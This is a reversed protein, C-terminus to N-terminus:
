NSRYRPQSSRDSCYSLVEGPANLTALTARQQVATTNHEIWSLFFAYFSRRWDPGIKVFASWLKGAFIKTQHVLIELVIIGMVPGHMEAPCAANPSPQMKINEKKEGHQLINTFFDSLVTSDRRVAGLAAVVIILVTQKTWICKCTNTYLWFGQFTYIETNRLTTINGLGLLVWITCFESSLASAQRGSETFDHAVNPPNLPWANCEGQQENHWGWFHLRTTSM